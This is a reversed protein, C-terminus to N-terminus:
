LPHYKLKTNELQFVGERLSNERREFEDNEM